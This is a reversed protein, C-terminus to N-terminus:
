GFLWYILTENHSRTKTINIYITENEYHTTTVKEPISIVQDKTVEVKKQPLKTFNIKYMLDSKSGTYIEKLEFSKTSENEFCISKYKSNVVDGDDYFSYIFEVCFDINENFLLEYKQSAYKKENNISTEINGDKLLIYELNESIFSTNTITMNKNITEVKNHPVPIEEPVTKNYEEKVEIKFNTLSVLIISIILIGFILKIESPINRKVLYHAM